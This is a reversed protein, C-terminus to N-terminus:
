SGPAPKGLLKRGEQEITQSLTRSLTTLVWPLIIEIRVDQDEIQLKGSITMGMVGAQFDLTDGTWHHEVHDLSSSYQGLLETFHTEIRQRAEAKSLQHPIVITLPAMIRFGFDFIRFGFLSIRM